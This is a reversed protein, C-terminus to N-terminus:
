CSGLNSSRSKKRSKSKKKLPKLVKSCKGFSEIWSRLRFHRQGNASNFVAGGDTIQPHFDFLIFSVALDTVNRRVYYEVDSKMM